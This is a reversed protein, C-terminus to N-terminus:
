LRMRCSGQNKAAGSCTDARVSEDVYEFPANASSDECEDSPAPLDDSGSSAFACGPPALEVMDVHNSAEASTDEGRGQHGAAAEDRGRRSAARAISPEASTDAAAATMDSGEPWQKSNEGTAHMEASARAEGSARAEDMARVEGAARAIRPAEDSAPSEATARAEDAAQTEASRPNSSMSSSADVRARSPNSAPNRTVPPATKAPAATVSEAPEVGPEEPRKRTAEAAIRDLVTWVLAAEDPHLVAEIKVMGDDRDRRTVFRRFPENQPGTNPDAEKDHEQVMRFKACVTELQGGCLHEAYGILTEETAPTAVRTIARVKSYSLEGREIAAAVKPLEGLKRAVRVQERAASMGIGARWSLWHACSQCGAYSWGGGEDFQRIAVLMRHLAADLHAAQEAIQEGLCEMIQRKNM